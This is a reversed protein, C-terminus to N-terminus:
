QVNYIKTDVESLRFYGLPYNSGNTQNIINGRVAAPTSAFLGGSNTATIIKSMYNYYDESIGYLNISVVNGAVTNKNIFIGFCQNGQFLEDSSVSYFPFPNTDTQFSDMYFNEESGNDQFFYKIQIQKGDFGGNNTQEINDEIDSVAMLKESATYIEGKNNITLFYTENLNPLFDTCIYEGTNPVEVFNFIAGSNNKIFVVAGSVIPVTDNYYDSTTTLKIKQVQGTTGKEWNISAEIVLKPSATNLQVDVVDECSVLLLLTLLFMIKNLRKM